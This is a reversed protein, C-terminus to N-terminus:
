NVYIVKTNRKIGEALAYMFMATRLEKESIRKSDPLKAYITSIDPVDPLQIKKITKNIESISINKRDLYSKLSSKLQLKYDDISILSKTGKESIKIRSTKGIFEVFELEIVLEILKNITKIKMFHDIDSGDGKVKFEYLKKSRITESLDDKSDWDNKKNINELILNIKRFTTAM